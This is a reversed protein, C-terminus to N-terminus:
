SSEKVVLMGSIKDHLGQKKDTWGAMFFGIFLIIGSLVKLVNRAAAEPWSPKGGESYLMEVFPLVHHAYLPDYRVMGM